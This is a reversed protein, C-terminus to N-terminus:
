EVWRECEARPAARIVLLHVSINCLRKRTGMPKVHSYKPKFSWYRRAECPAPVHGRTPQWDGTGPTV